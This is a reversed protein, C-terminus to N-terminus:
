LPQAPSLAKPDLPARHIRWARSLNFYPSFSATWEPPNPLDRMKLVDLVEGGARLECAGSPTKLM